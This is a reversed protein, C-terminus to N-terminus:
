RLPVLGLGAFGSRTNTPVGGTPVLSRAIGASRNLTDPRVPDSIPRNARVSNFADYAGLTTNGLAGVVGLFGPGRSANSQTEITRRQTASQVDNSSTALELQAQEAADASRLAQENRNAQTQTIERNTDFQLQDLERNRALSEETFDTNTRDLDLIGLALAEEYARQLGAEQVGRQIQETSAQVIDELGLSERESAVLDSDTGVVSDGRNAERVQRNSQNRILELQQNASNLSAEELQELQSTEQLLAQSQALTARQEEQFRQQDLQIEQQTSGVQGAIEQVELDLLALAKQSQLGQLELDTRAKSLQKQQEIQLKTLHEQTKVSNAQTQLQEQQAKRQRGSSRLGNVLQLGGLAAGVIPLVM